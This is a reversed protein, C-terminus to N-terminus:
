SESESDVENTTCSIVYMPELEALGVKELRSEFPSIFILISVHNSNEASSIHISLQEDHSFGIKLVKSFGGPKTSPQASKATTTKTRRRTMEPITM